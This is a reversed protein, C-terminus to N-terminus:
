PTARLLGKCNTVCELAAEIPLRLAYWMNSDDSDSTAMQRFLQAMGQLYDDAQLVLDTVLHLDLLEKETLTITTNSM